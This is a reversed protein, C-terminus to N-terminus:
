IDLLHNDATSKRESIGFWDGLYHPRHELFSPKGTKLYQVFEFKVLPASLWSYNPSGRHFTETELDSSEICARPAKTVATGQQQSMLILDNLFYRGHRFEPKVYMVRVPLYSGAEEEHVAVQEVTYKADELMQKEFVTFDGLLRVPETLTFEQQCLEKIFLDRQDLSLHKLSVFVRHQPNSSVIGVMEAIQQLRNRYTHQGITRRWARQVTSAYFLDDELLSRYIEEIEAANEALLVEDASYVSRIADSHMGVVATKAASLEFVRRACMTQSGVVSNVNLFIRHRKYEEVMRSYPLSGAVYSSYLEPFQYNPNGGLVRSFISFKYKTAPPFLFSMQEAREPFKHAFYQGAFAIDGQRYGNVRRPNHIKESAAFRLLQVEKAETLELYEPIKDADTTLVYDFLSAAEIFDKFHPPDEKNWFVTPIGKSRCASVLDKLPQGPGKRSTILHQWAGRNGNWASEVLLFDPKVYSLELEPRTIEFPWLNACDKLCETSFDDLVAAIQLEENEIRRTQFPEVLSDVIENSLMM